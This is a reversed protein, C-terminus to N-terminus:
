YRTPLAAGTYSSKGDDRGAIGKPNEQQCRPYKMDVTKM